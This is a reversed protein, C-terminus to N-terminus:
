IQSNLKKITENFVKNLLKKYLNLTNVDIKKSLCFDYLEKSVENFEKEFINVKNVMILNCARQCNYCVYYPSEAEQIFVNKLCCRSVM